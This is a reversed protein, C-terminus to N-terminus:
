APPSSPSMSILRTIATSNLDLSSIRLSNLGRLWLGTRQEVFVCNEPDISELRRGAAQAARVFEPPIRSHKKRHRRRSDYFRGNGERLWIRVKGCVM